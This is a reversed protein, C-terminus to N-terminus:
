DDKVCEVGNEPNVNYEKGCLVCCGRIFDRKDLINTQNSKTNYVAILSIKYISFIMSRCESCEPIGNNALMIQEKMMEIERDV